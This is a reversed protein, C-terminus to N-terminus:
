DNYADRVSDRTLVMLTFVGLLTGLPMHMCNIGAIVMSFVRNTKKRLYLASLFNIVGGALIFLAMVLYMWQFMDMLEAPPPSGGGKQNKWIEPNAFVSHMIYFHGAIFLLGLLSMAAMLFHFIALLRLHDDDVKSQDRMPALMPYHAPFQEHVPPPEPM